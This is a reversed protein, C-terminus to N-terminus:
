LSGVLVSAMEDRYSVENPMAGLYMTEAVFKKTASEEEVKEAAKRKQGGQSSSGSGVARLRQGEPDSRKRHRDPQKVFQPQMMSGPPANLEKEHIRMHRHMNGNTTFSM